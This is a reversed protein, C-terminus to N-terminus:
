SEADHALSQIDEEFARRAAQLEFQDLGGDARDVADVVHVVEVAPVDARFSACEGACRLQRCGGDTLSRM